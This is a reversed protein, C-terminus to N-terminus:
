TAPANEKRRRTAAANCAPQRRQTGNCNTRACTGRAELSGIQAARKHLAVPTAALTPRCPM